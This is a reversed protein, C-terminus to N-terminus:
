NSMSRGVAEEVKETLKYLSDTKKITTINRYNDFLVHDVTTSRIKTLNQPPRVEYAQDSTFLIIFKNQGDYDKRTEVEVVLGPNCSPDALRDDSITSFGHLGIGHANYHLEVWKFNHCKNQTGVIAAEISMRDLSARDIPKYGDRRQGAIKSEIFNKAAWTAAFSESKSQGKTGIRGWRRTVTNTTTDLTISWFKNHGTGQHIFLQENKDKESWASM